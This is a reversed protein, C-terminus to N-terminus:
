LPLGVRRILDQFRMDDRLEDYIPNVKFELAFSNREQVAKDLWAFAQGRDGLRIYAIAYETAPVYEGRKMKENLKELRQQALARVSAEFGSAAYTHELSSAQQGAGSLTLAKGWETIAERHMGKQECAEGLLDHAAAFNPELELTKGLQDIARDHQRMYFLIKAWNLNPGLSLPELEVARQIEALAEEGRGLRVLCMAYHLHIEAYNPNLKIGRRFDREAAPWDRYYYVKVAALPNYTEARTDDLALSKNVAAEAKPWNENPPLLGVASAFGYYDALGCYALAYNPDLDIAQQFYERSKAYGQAPGKNWYYRGKLDAQYAETNETGRKTVRQQETSTLRL